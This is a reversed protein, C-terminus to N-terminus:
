AQPSFTLNFVRGDRLEVRLIGSSWDPSLHMEDVKGEGTAFFLRALLDSFVEQMPNEEPM